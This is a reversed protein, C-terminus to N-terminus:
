LDGEGDNQFDSEHAYDIGLGKAINHVTKPKLPTSKM